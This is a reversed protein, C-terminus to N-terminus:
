AATVAEAKERAPQQKGNRFKERLLVVDTIISAAIIILEPWKPIMSGHKRYSGLGLWACIWRPLPELYSTGFFDAGVGHSVIDLPIHCALGGWTLAQAAYLIWPKKDQSYYRSVRSLLIYIGLWLFFYHPIIVAPNTSTEAGHDVNQGSLFDVVVQKILQADPAASGIVCALPIGATMVVSRLKGRLSVEPQWKTLYLGATLGLAEHALFM